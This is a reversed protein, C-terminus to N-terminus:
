DPKRLANIIAEAAKLVMDVDNNLAGEVLLGVNDDVKNKSLKPLTRVAWIILKKSVLMTGLNKFIQILLAKIVTLGM